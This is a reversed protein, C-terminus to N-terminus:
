KTKAVRFDIWVVDERSNFINYIEMVTDKDLKEFINLYNLLMINEFKGEIACSFMTRFNMVCIVYHNDHQNIIGRIVASAVFNVTPEYSAKGLKISWQMGNKTNLIRM